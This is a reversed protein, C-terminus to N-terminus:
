DRAVKEFAGMSSNVLHNSANKRTNNIVVYMDLRRYNAESHEHDLHREERTSAQNRKQCRRQRSSM